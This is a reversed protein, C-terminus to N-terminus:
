GRVFLPTSDRLPFHSLSPRPLRRPVRKQLVQGQVCREELLLVCLIEIASFIVEHVCLQPLNQVFSVFFFFFVFWGKTIVESFGPVFAPSQSCFCPIPLLLLTARM